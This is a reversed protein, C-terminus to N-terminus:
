CRLIHFARLLDDTTLFPGTRVTTTTRQDSVLDTATSRDSGLPAALVTPGGLWQATPASVVAAPAEHPHDKCPCHPQGPAPKPADSPPEDSTKCHPCAPARVQVVAKAPHPNAQASPHFACCCVKPVLVAAVVYWAALAIRVM